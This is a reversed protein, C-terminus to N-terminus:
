LEKGVECEQLKQYFQNSHILQLTDSKTKEKEDRKRPQKAESTFDRAPPLAVPLQAVLRGAHKV